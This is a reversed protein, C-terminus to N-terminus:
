DKARKITPTNDVSTWPRGDDDVAVYGINTNNIVDFSNNAGNWKRLASNTDRIYVTGDAGVDVKSAKQGSAPRKEFKTGTWQQVYNATDVIWVNRDSVV